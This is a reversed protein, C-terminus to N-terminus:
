RTLACLVQPPVCRYYCCAPLLPVPMLPRGGAATRAIFTGSRLRDRSSAATTRAHVGTVIRAFHLLM